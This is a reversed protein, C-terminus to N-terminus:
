REGILEATRTNFMAKSEHKAFYLFIIHLRFPQQTLTLLVNGIYIQVHAKYEFLAFFPHCKAM